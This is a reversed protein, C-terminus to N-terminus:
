DARGIHKSLNSLEQANLSEKEVLLKLLAALSRAQDAVKEGTKTIEKSRELITTQGLLTNPFQISIAPKINDPLTGLHDSHTRRNDSNLFIISNLAARPPYIYSIVKVTPISNKLRFPDNRIIPNNSASIYPTLRESVDAFKEIQGFRGIQFDHM